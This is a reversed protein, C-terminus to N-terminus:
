ELLVIYAEDYQEAVALAEKETNFLVAGHQDQIIRSKRKDENFIEIIIWSM